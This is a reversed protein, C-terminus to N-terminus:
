WVHIEVRAEYILHKANRALEESWNEGDCTDGAPTCVAHFFDAVLAFDHSWCVHGYTLMFFVNWDFVTDYVLSFGTLIM